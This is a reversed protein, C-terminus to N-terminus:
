NLSSITKIKPPIVKFNKLSKFIWTKGLNNGQGLCGYKFREPMGVGWFTPSLSLCPILSILLAKLWLSIPNVDWETPLLKLDFPTPFSQKNWVELISFNLSLPPSSYSLSLPLVGVPFGCSEHKSQAVGLVSAAGWLSNWLPWVRGSNDYNENEWNQRGSLRLYWRFGWQLWPM